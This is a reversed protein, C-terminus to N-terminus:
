RTLEVGRGLALLLELPELLEAARDVQRDLVREHEGDVRERQKRLEQVLREEATAAESQREPPPLSPRRRPV